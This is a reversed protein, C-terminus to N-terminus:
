MRAGPLHALAKFLRVLPTHVGPVETGVLSLARVAGPREAAAFRAIMGGSDQAVLVVEDLGLQDILRVVTDAHGRVTLPTESTAKSQGAGPLDIVFRTFGELHSVVNRWTNANLPWGHIFLLNPGTGMKQYSLQTHGVDITHTSATSM